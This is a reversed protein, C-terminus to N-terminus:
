KRSHRYNWFSRSKDRSCGGVTCFSIQSRSTISWTVRRGTGVMFGFYLGFVESYPIRYRRFVISRQLLQEGVLVHSEAAIGGPFCRKVMSVLLKASGKNSFIWKLRPFRGRISNRRQKHGSAAETSSLALKQCWSNNFSCDRVTKRM